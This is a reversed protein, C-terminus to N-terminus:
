CNIMVSSTKWEIGFAKRCTSVYKDLELVPHESKFADAYFRMSTTVSKSLWYMMVNDLLKTKGWNELGGDSLNLWERNTWTSFKELIYAALGAPSDTM